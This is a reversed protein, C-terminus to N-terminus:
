INTCYYLIITCINFIQITWLNHVMITGMTFYLEDNHHDYLNYYNDYDYNNHYINFIILYELM